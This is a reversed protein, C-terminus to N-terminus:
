VIPEREEETLPRRLIREMMAVTEEVSMPQTEDFYVGEPTREEQLGFASLSRDAESRQWFRRLLPAISENSIAAIEEFLLQPDIGLHVACHYFPCNVMLADRYDESPVLSLSILCARLRQESPYSDNLLIASRPPDDVDTELVV